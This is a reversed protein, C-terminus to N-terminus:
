PYRGMYHLRGSSSHFPSPTLIEMRPYALRHERYRKNKTYAARPSFFTNGFTQLDQHCAGRISPSPREIHPIGSPARSHRPSPLTPSQIPTQDRQSSSPYTLLELFETESTIFEFILNDLHRTLTPGREVQLFDIGELDPLM